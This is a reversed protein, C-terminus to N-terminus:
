DQMAEAVMSRATRLGCIKLSRAIWRATRECDGGDKAVWERVARKTNEDLTKANSTATTM